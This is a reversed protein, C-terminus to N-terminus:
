RKFYMGVRRQLCINESNGASGYSLFLFLNPSIHENAVTKRATSLLNRPFPKHRKIRERFQLM